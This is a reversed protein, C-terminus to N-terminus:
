TGMSQRELKAVDVHLALLRKMLRERDEVTPKTHAWGQAQQLYDEARHRLGDVEPSPAMVSLRRLVIEIADRALALRRSPLVVIALYRLSRARAIVTAV